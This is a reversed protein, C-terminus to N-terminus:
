SVEKPVGQSPLLSKRCAQVTLSVRGAGEQSPSLSSGPAGQSRYFVRGAGRAAITSSEERPVGQRGTSVEERCGKRSAYLIERGPLAKRRYLSEAGQPSPLSKKGKEKGPRKRRYLIKRPV